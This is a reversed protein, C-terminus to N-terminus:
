LDLDDDLDEEDMDDFEPDDDQVFIRPGSKTTPQSQSHDDITAKTAAASNATDRGEEGIQLTPRSRQSSSSSASPAQSTPSALEMTALKETTKPLLSEDGGSADTRDKTKRQVVVKKREEKDSQGSSKLLVLRETSQYGLGTVGPQQQKQLQNQELTFQQVDTGLRGAAGGVKGDGGGRRMTRMEGGSLTVIADAEDEFRRMDALQISEISIPAVIPSLAVNNSAGDSSNGVMGRGLLRQLFRYTKASGHYSLLPVISDFIVPIDGTAENGDLDQAAAISAAAREITALVTKLSDMRSSYCRHVTFPADNDDEKYEGDDSEDWGLADSALDVTAGNRQFQAAWGSDDMAHTTGGDGDGRSPVSLHNALSVWVVRGGTRSAVEELASLALLGGALDRTASESPTRLGALRYLADESTANSPNSTDSSTKRSTGVRRGGKRSGSGDSASADAPSSATLRTTLDATHQLLVLRSRKNSASACSAGDKTKQSSSSSSPPRPLLCRVFPAAASTSTVTAMTPDRASILPMPPPRGAAGADAAHDLCCVM